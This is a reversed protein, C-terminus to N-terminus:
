VKFEPKNFAIKMMECVWKTILILIFSVAYPPLLVPIRYSKQENDDHYLHQFRSVKPDKYM